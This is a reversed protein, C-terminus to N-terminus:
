LRFKSIFFQPRGKTEIIVERELDLVVLLALILLSLFGTIFIWASTWGFLTQILFSTVLALGLSLWVAVQHFLNFSTSVAFELDSELLKTLFSPHIHSSHFYYLRVLVLLSGLIVVLMVFLNSINNALVLDNFHDFYLKNDQISYSVGLYRATFILSIIKSSFVLVVPVVSEDLLKLVFASM